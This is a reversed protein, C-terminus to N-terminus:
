PGFPYKANDITQYGKKVIPEEDGTKESKCEDIRSM